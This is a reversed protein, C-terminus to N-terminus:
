YCIQVISLSLMPLLLFFFHLVFEFSALALLNWLLVSELACISVPIEVPLWIWGLRIEAALLRRFNAQKPERVPVSLPRALQHHGHGVAVRTSNGVQLLAAVALAAAAM